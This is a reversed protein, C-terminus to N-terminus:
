CKSCNFDGFDPPEEQTEHEIENESTHEIEKEENQIEASNSIEDGVDKNLTDENEVLKELNRLKEALSNIM